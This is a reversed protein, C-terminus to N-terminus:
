LEADAAVNAEWYFGGAGSSACYTNFHGEDTGDVTLSSANSYGQSSFTISANTRMFTPLSTQGSRVNAATSAYYSGSRVLTMTQFVESM